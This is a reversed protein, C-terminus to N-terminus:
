LARGRTMSAVTLFRCSRLTGDLVKQTFGCRNAMLLYGKSISPRYGHLNGATHDAGFTPHPLMLGNIFSHMGETRFLNAASRQLRLALEPPMRSSLFSVLLLESM